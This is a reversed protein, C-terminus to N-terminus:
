QSARTSSGLHHSRLWADAEQQEASRQHDSLRPASNIVIVRGTEDGAAQALLGWFYAKSYDQPAGKGAWFCTAIKAAARINGADAAKLFWGLAEHYDQVAGDGSAYKMGLSYQAAPNGQLAIKELDGTNMGVYDVSAPKSEAAQSTSPATFKTMADSIWPAVLWVGFVVAVIGSVFLIAKRRQPSPWAASITENEFRTDTTLQVKNEHKEESDSAPLVKGKSRSIANAVIRALRELTRADNDWFATTEPSFVELIGTIEGKHTKVPCAIVSRIGLAHCSEHDVRSDTEADDCVLTSGSRVCEGSFGSFTDLRAGLEPSDNGARAECILVASKVNDRLAIAAGTAWTLTLAREAILQLAEPLNPGFLEVDKEIEAWEAILSSYGAAEGPRARVMQGGFGSNENQIPPVFEHSTDAVGAANNAALWKRLQLLSPESLEPFRIGSRGSGESWVVHGTTHIRDGTESLDLALPLLRNVKMPGPAQICTGSESINLIECLELAVTQSSGNLTAYAPTNVVNRVARRRERGYIANKPAIDVPRAGRRALCSVKM